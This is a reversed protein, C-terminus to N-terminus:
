INGGGQAVLGTIQYTKGDKMVFRQGVQPNQTFGLAAITSSFTSVVPLSGSGPSIALNGVVPYSHAGWYSGVAAALDNYSNWQGAQMQGRSNHGVYLMTNCEPANASAPARRLANTVAQTVWPDNCNGAQATGIGFMSAAVTAFMWIKWNKNHM